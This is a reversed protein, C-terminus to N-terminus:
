FENYTTQKNIHSKVKAFFDMEENTAVVLKPPAIPEPIYPTLSPELSSIDMAPQKSTRPKKVANSRGNPQPIDQNAARKKKDKPPASSFNGLPPLGSKPLPGASTIANQNAAPDPLFEKFSELLDKQDHFLEAVQAYVEQIPKSEKQYTQLIELFTKYIEPESTFRHKIKNVYSIAHNFEVPERKLAAPGKPPLLPAGFPANPPLQHPPFLPAGYLDRDRDRDRDRDSKAPKPEHIQVGAPTIVRITRDDECEIRFGPPLFTNFGQILAPHGYFLTSVRDIVGPTDISQSKFDKMIDLFRNYVDPRETFQMKVQDLYSLADKVNLNRGGAGADGQLHPLPPLLHGNAAHEQM